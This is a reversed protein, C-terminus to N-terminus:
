EFIGVRVYKEMTEEIRGIREGVDGRGIEAEPLIMRLTSPADGVYDDVRRWYDANETFQDCAIVSWREMSEVRPLM